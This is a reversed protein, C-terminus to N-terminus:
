DEQAPAKAPMLCACPTMPQGLRTALGVCRDYEVWSTDSQVPAPEKKSFYTAIIVVVFLLILGAFILNDVTSTKM